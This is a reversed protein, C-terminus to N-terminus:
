LELVKDLGRHLGSLTSVKRIALLAGGVYPKAGSGSNHRLVLTQDPLGFLVDVGLVHGPLRICHVQTGSLSAGRAEQPGVTQVIPVTMQPQSVQSLRQVLERVTGSPADIKHDDAYEVIEWQPLHKAAAVAFMQLLVATIAFNGCALVGVRRECAILDIEAYDEDTLGSTGVVVHVGRRVACLINDKASAPNTFEVMVDCPVALAEQASAYLPAQLRTDGLVDGLNKGAGTRSLGAVLRLDVTAAIGRALESGAWGTAGALCVKLAM